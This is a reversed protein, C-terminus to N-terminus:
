DELTADSIELSRRLMKGTIPDRVEIQVLAGKCTIRIRTTDTDYYERKGFCDSVFVFDPDDVEFADKMFEVVGECALKYAGEKNSFVKVREGGVSDYECSSCVWVQMIARREIVMGKLEIRVNMANIVLVCM